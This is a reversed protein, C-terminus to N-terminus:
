NFVCHDVPARPLKTRLRNEKENNNNKKQQKRLVTGPSAETLSVQPNTKPNVTVGKISTLDTTIVTPFLSLPMKKEEKKKEKSKRNELHNGGLRQRRRGVSRFHAAALKTGGIDIGKGFEGAIAIPHGLRPRTGDTALLIGV